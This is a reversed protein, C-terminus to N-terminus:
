ETDHFEFEQGFGPFFDFYCCPTLVTAQLCFFAFWLQNAKKQKGGGNLKTLQTSYGAFIGKSFYAFIM